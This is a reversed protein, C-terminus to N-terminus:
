GLDYKLEFNFSVELHGNNAACRSNNMMDASPQKVAVLPRNSTDRFTM